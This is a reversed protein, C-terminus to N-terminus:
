SYFLHRHVDQALRERNLGLRDLDDDSKAALVAVAHRRDAVIRDSAAAIAAAARAVATAFASFLTDSHSAYAM